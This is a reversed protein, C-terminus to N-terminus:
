LFSVHIQTGDVTGSTRLFGVVSHISLLGVGSGAYRSVTGKKHLIFNREPKLFLFSACAEVIDEGCIYANRRM